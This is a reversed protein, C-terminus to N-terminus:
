VCHRFSGWVAVWGSGTLWYRAGRQQMFSPSTSVTLVRCKPLRLRLWSDWCLDLARTVLGKMRATNKPPVHSVYSWTIVAPPSCICFYFFCHIANWKSELIEKYTLSFTEPRPQGTKLVEGISIRRGRWFPSWTLTLVKWCAVTGLNLLVKSM